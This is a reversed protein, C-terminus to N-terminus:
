KPMDPCLYPVSAIRYHEDHTENGAQLRLELIGSGLAIVKARIEATGEQWVLSSDSEARWTTLQYTEWCSDMVLTGDALFIRMVGPLGTSDTRAWARNVLTATPGPAPPRSELTPTEPQCGMCALLALLGTVCKMRGSADLRM